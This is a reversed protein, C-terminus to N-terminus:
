YFNIRVAIFNHPKKYFKRYFDLVSNHCIKLILAGSFLLSPITQNTISLM